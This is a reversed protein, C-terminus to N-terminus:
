VRAKKLKSFLAKLAGGSAAAGVGAVAGGALNQGVSSTGITRPQKYVTDISNPDISQDDADTFMGLSNRPRPDALNIISDLHDRASFKYGQSLPMFRGTLKFNTLSPRRTLQRIKRNAEQNKTRLVRLHRSMSTREEAMLRRADIEPLGPNATRYAPLDRRAASLRKPSKTTAQRLIAEPIETLRSPAFDKLTKIFQDGRAFQIIGNLQERAALTKVKAKEGEKAPKEEEEIPDITQIEIDASHRKNGEENQRTTKSRLKYTIVAKGSLPLDIDNARDHIYLSPFHKKSQSSGPSCPLCDTEGYTYGLDVPKFEIIRSLQDRASLKTNGKGSLMARIRKIVDDSAEDGARRSRNPEIKLREANSRKLMDLDGQAVASSKTPIFNKPRGGMELIGEIAHLHTETQFGGMVRAKILSQRAVKNHRRVVKGAGPKKRARSLERLIDPLALSSRLEIVENLQEKASMLHGGFPIKKPSIKSAVKTIVHRAKRTFTQGQKHRMATLKRAATDGEPTGKARRALRELKEKTTGGMEDPLGGHKARVAADMRSHIATEIRDGYKHLGYATGLLGAGVGLRALREKRTMEQEDRRLPRAATM